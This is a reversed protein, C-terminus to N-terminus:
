DVRTSTQKVGVQEVYVTVAEVPVGLHSELYEKVAGQLAVTSEQVVTDPAFAIGLSIQLNETESVSVRSNVERVNSVSRAARQVMADVASVAVRIAGNDTTKVLVNEPAVFNSKSGSSGSTGVFLRIILLIVVCCAVITLITNLLVGNTILAYFGDFYPKAPGVVIAITFLSLAIMFLLVLFLLVRDFWKMKM